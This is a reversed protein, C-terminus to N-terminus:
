AASDQRVRRTFALIGPKALTEADKLGTSGIWGPFGPKHQYGWAELRAYVDYEDTHVLAGRAVTSQIVPGITTQRVDALM